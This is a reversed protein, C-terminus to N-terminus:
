RDGLIEKLAELLADYEALENYANASFRVCAKGEPAMAPIQIKYEDYLRDHLRPSYKSDVLGDVPLLITCLNALMEPPAGYSTGLATTIKERAAMVLSNAHVRIENMGLSQMFDIGAAISFWGSPDVSGTWSFKTQFDSGPECSIVTAHVKEQHKKSVWLIGSGKPAYLWKHCNGAYFDADLATLDVHVHGPAHAGDIMIPINREKFIPVIKEVPFVVGTLSTVHDVACFKTRPTIKAVLADIVQQPSEIPFPVYAEVVKAGTLSAVYHLTQHTATYAHSTTLLEDGPKFEAALSRLVANAGTTANQVLVLDDPDGNLFTALATRAVPLQAPLERTMFRVPDLELRNRWFQQVELVPKPCAGFSGHNLFIVDDELLWHHRVSRGLTM